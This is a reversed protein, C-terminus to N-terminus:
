WSYRVTHTVVKSGNPPVTVESHITRANVKEFDQSKDTIEWSPWRFLNEKIIVKQELDKHNRTEIKFIETLSKGATNM